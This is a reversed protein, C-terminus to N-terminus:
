TLLLWVIRMGWLGVTRVSSCVGLLGTRQAEIAAYQADGLHAMKARLWWGKHRIYKPIWVIHYAIRWKAHRRRLM